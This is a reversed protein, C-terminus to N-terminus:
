NFMGNVIAGLFTGAADALASDKASDANVNNIALRTERELASESSSWAYNMLDREQQWLEALGQMTMNNAAMVEAM